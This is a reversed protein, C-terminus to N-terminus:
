ENDILDGIVEYEEISYTVQQYMGPDMPGYEDDENEEFHYIFDVENEKASEEYEEAILRIYDLALERTMFINDVDWGEDDSDQYRNPKPEWYSKVVYVTTM